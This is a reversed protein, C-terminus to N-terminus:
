EPKAAAAALCRHVATRQVLNAIYLGLDEHGLIVKDGKV